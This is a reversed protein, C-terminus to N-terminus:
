VYKNFEEIRDDPDEEDSCIYQVLINGAGDKVTFIQYDSRKTLYVEGQPGYALLQLLSM